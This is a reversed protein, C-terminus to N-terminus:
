PAIPSKPLPKPMEVWKQVNFCIKEICPYNVKCYERVEHMINATTVEPDPNFVKESLKFKFSARLDLGGVYHGVKVLIQDDHEVNNVNCIAIM